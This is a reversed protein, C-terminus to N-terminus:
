CRDCGQDPHPAPLPPANARLAAAPAMLSLVRIPRRGDRRGAKTLM